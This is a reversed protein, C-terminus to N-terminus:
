SGSVNTVLDVYTLEMYCIDGGGLITPTIAIHLEDILGSRLYQKITNSGGGIQVDMADAVKRAQDLAEHIGGTVFYFTTGGEM